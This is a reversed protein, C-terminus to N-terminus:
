SCCRAPSLWFSRSIGFAITALGFGIVCWLLTKGAHRMPLYAIVVGMIIAGIAPSARLWGLGIPGCHLIEKAFMPLLAGDGGLLVAFMDLTLTALIVKTNWVFRLGDRLSRLAGVTM